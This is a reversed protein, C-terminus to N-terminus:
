KPRNAISRMISFYFLALLLMIGISINQIIAQISKSQKNVQKEMMLVYEYWMDKAQTVLAKIEDPSHMDVSKKMLDNLAAQSQPAKQVAEIESYAVNFWELHIQQVEEFLKYALPLSIFSQKLLDLEVKFQESSRVFKTSYSANKTIAFGHQANIMNLMTRHLKYLEASVDKFNLIVNQLTKNGDYLKNMLVLNMMMFFAIIVSFVLVKNRITVNM